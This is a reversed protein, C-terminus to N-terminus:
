PQTHRRNLIDITSYTKPQTHRHNLIDITSYTKPQTHRQNLIDVTSYTKPQTHRHNSEECVKIEIHFKTITVTIESTYSANTYHLQGSTQQCCRYGCTHKGAHLGAHVGAHVSCSATVDTESLSVGSSRSSASLANSAIPAACNSKLSISQDATGLHTMADNKM